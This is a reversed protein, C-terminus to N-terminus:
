IAVFKAAHLQFTRLMANFGGRRQSGLLNHLGLNELLKSKYNVINDPATNSFLHVLLAVLGKTISANSDAKFFIHPSQYTVILWVKALCGPVLEAQQQEEHSFSPLENGVDILQTILWEPHEQALSFGKIIDNERDQISDTIKPSIM